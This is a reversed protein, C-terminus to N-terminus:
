QLFNLRQNLYSSSIRANFNRHLKDFNGPYYKENYLKFLHKFNIDKIDSMDSNFIDNKVANHMELFLSVNEKPTTEKLVIGKELYEDSSEAYALNLEFIEKLTLFRSLKKSYHDKFSVLWKDLPFNALGVPSMNICLIPKRFVTPVYDMGTSTSIAFSCNACLFIDLFDSRMGNTAYDIIKKNSTKLKKEVVHGMRFVYYGQKTLEECAEIYNDINCDRYNHYNWNKNKFINNLYAKDRVFLLVFKQSKKGQCVDSLFSEGKKRQSESLFLNQPNKKILQHIDRDDQDTLYVINEKNKFFFKELLIFPYILFVPYITIKKKILEFLTRNSIYGSFEEVCFLDYTNTQNQSNIEKNKNCFYIETELALHGVRGVPIEGFRILFKSRLIKIFFFIPLYLFALCIFILKKIYRKLKNKFFQFDGKLISQFRQFFYSFCILIFKKIKGTM